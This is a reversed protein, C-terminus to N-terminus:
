ENRSEMGAVVAAPSKSSRCRRCAEVGNVPASSTTADEHDVPEAEARQQEHQEM